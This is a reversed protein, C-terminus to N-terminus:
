ATQRRRLEAECMALAFDIIRQVYQDIAPQSNILDPQIAEIVDLNVFLSLALGSVSFALRQVDADPEQLGLYRSICQALGAHAPKIVTEIEDQWLGTPELMERCYLKMFLAAKEGQRLADTFGHVLATMSARIDDGEFVEPKIEPNYRPDRFVACYLGMKDGFYYSIASINVEATRAIERTSAKAFGHNAFLLLGADLLRLRAEAGDTRLGRELKQAKSAPHINQQEPQSQADQSKM